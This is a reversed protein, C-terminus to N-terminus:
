NMWGDVSRDAKTIIMETGERWGGLCMGKWESDSAFICYGLYIVFSCVVRTRLSAGLETAGDKIDCSSESPSLSWEQLTPFKDAPSELM